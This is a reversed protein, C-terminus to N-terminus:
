LMIGAAILANVVDAVTATAPDVHAAKSATLKGALATDLGTVQATTHTHSTPAAGVQAATPFPHVHDARAATTGAGVAAAAGLAAPASAALALSSTGAGLATRATPADAATLVAKGVASADTIDNSTVVSSGGGGTVPLPNNVSVTVYEKATEDWYYLAPM